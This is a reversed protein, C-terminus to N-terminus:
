VSPVHELDDPLRRGHSGRVVAGGCRRAALGRSRGEREERSLAEWRRVAALERPFLGRGPLVEPFRAAIRARYTRGLACRDEGPLRVRAAQEPDLPCVPVSCAEFRPCAEYPAKV